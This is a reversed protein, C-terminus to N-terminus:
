HRVNALALIRIAEWHVQRAIKKCNYTPNVSAELRIHLLRATVVIWRYTGDSVDSMDSIQKLQLLLKGRVTSPFINPNQHRIYLAAFYLIHIIQSQYDTSKEYPLLPIVKHLPDPECMVSDIMKIFVKTSMGYNITQQEPDKEPDKKVVKSQPRVVVKNWDRLM